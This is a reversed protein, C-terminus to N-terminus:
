TPYGTIVIVVTETNKTRISKLIDFGNMGPLNLDLIVVDFAQHEVHNLGSRGNESLWVDCGKRSLIQYCADRMLQEDDIVLVNFPFNM